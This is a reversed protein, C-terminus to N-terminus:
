KPSQKRATRLLPSMKNSITKELPIAALPHKNILWNRLAKAWAAPSEGAKGPHREDSKWRRWFEGEILSWSTPRGPAGTKYTVGPALAQKILALWPEM